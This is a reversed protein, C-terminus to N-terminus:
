TPQFRELPDFQTVPQYRALLQPEPIAAEGASVAGPFAVAIAGVVAALCLLYQKM